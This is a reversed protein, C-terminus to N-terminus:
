NHWVEIVHNSEHDGLGYSRCCAKQVMKQIQGKSQAKEKHEFNWKWKGNIRRGLRWVLVKCEVNSHEIKIVKDGSAFLM